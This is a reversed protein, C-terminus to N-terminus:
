FKIFKKVFSNPLLLALFYKIKKLSYPMQKIKIRAEIRNNKLILSIVELNNIMAGVNSFYKNNLINPYSRMKNCWLKLEDIQKSKNILSENQGHVRWSAIPKEVCDFKYKSSMRIMLDFDGIIHFKDDFPSEQNDLFSKRILLTVLGTHYKKLLSSLIVGKPIKKKLYLSKTNLKENIIFCNGYVVAVESDRFLELQLELKDKEWFDDTDLFALFNGSSKKIAQNRAKYLNTHEPAYFYKLRKDNYSRFIDASKDNSKNDWFILEWNKFTQFLVSEISEKLYKEGNYCNMIVSVFPQNNIENHM